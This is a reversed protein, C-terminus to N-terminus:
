REPATEKKIFDDMVMRRSALANAMCAFQSGNEAGSHRPLALQWHREARSRGNGSLLSLRCYIYIYVDLGHMYIRSPVIVASKGRDATKKGGTKSCIFILARNWEFQSRELTKSWKMQWKVIFVNRWARNTIWCNDRIMMRSNLHLTYQALQRRWLKSSFIWLITEARAHM